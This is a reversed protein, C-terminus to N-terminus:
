INKTSSIDSIKASGTTLLAKVEPKTVSLHSSLDHFLYLPPLGWVATPCKIMLISCGSVRSHHKTQQNQM